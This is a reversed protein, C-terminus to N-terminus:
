ATAADASRSCPASRLASSLLLREGLIRLLAGLGRRARFRHEEGGGAVVQTLRQVGDTEEGRSQATAHAIGFHAIQDVADVSRDFRQLIQEVRQEVDALEVRAHDLRAHVRESQFRHQRAEFLLELGVREAASQLQPHPRPRQTDVAIRNQELADQAIQNGVRDTIGAAAANQDTAPTRPRATDISTQSVPM